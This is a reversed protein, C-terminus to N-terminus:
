RVPEGVIRKALSGRDFFDDSLQNILAVTEPAIPTPYARVFEQISMVRQVDVISLRMPQVDLVARDRLVAFSRVAATVPRSYAPWNAQSSFGLVRFVRAGHAVFAVHGALVGDDQTM